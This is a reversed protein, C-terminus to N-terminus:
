LSVKYKLKETKLSKCYRLRKPIDKQSNTVRSKNTSRNTHTKNRRVVRKTEYSLNRIGFAKICVDFLETLKM